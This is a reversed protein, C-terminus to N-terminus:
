EYFLTNELSELEPRCISTSLLISLKRILKKRKSSDYSIYVLQLEGQFVIVWYMYYAHLIMGDYYFDKKTMKM